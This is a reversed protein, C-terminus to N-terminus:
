TADKRKDNEVGAEQHPTPYGVMRHGFQLTFSSHALSGVIQHIPLTTRGRVQFKDVLSPGKLLHVQTGYPFRDDRMLNPDGSCQDDQRARVATCVDMRESPRQVRAQKDVNPGHKM